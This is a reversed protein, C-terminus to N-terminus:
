YFCLKNRGKTNQRRKKMGPLEAPDTKGCKNWAIFIGRRRCYFIYWCGGYDLAIWRDSVHGDQRLLHIGLDQLHAVVGEYIARM